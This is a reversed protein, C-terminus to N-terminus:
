NLSHRLESLDRASGSEANEGGRHDECHPAMALLLLFSPALLFTPSPLPVPATRDRVGVVSFLVACAFVAPVPAACAGDPVEEDEAAHAIAAVRPRRFRAVGERADRERLSSCGPDESETAAKAIVVVVVGRNTTRAGRFHEQGHLPVAVVKQAAVM